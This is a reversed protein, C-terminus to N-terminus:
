RNLRLSGRCQTPNSQVPHRTPNKRVSETDTQSELSEPNPALPLHILDSTRSGDRRQRHQRTIWGREEFAALSREVTKVSCCAQRAITEQGPYCSGDPGAYSAIVLLVAKETATACEQEIAWTSAQVSM